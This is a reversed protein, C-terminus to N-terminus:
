FLFPMVFATVTTCTETSCFLNNNNNNNNDSHAQTLPRYPIFCKFFFPNLNCLITQQTCLSHDDHNDPANM